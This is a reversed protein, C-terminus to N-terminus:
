GAVYYGNLIGEGEPLPSTLSIQETNERNPKAATDAMM